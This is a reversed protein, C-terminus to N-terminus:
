HWKPYGNQNLLVVRKEKKNLIGRKHFGNTDAIILSHSKFELPDCPSFKMEKLLEEERNPNNKAVRIAGLKGKDLHSELEKNQSTMCSVKYLFDLKEKTPLHSRKSYCFAGNKASVDNLYLFWKMTPHARDLHVQNQVDQHPGNLVHKQFGVSANNINFIKKCIDKINVIQNDKVKVNPIVIYGNRKFENAESTNPLRSYFRKHNILNILIYLGKKNLEIEKTNKFSIYKKGLSNNAIELLETYTEMSNPTDIISNIFDFFEMYKYVLSSNKLSM